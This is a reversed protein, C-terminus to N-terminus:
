PTRLSNNNSSSCRVAASPMANLEGVSIWRTRSSGQPAAPSPSAPPIGERERGEGSDRGSDNGDHVHGYRWQRRCDALIRFEARM